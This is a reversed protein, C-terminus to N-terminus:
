NMELERATNCTQDAPAHKCESAMSNYVLRSSSNSSSSFQADIAATTQRAVVGLKTSNEDVHVWIKEKNGFSQYVDQWTTLCKEM